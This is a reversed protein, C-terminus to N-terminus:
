GVFYVPFNYAGRKALWGDFSNGVSLHADLLVVAGRGNLALDDLMSELLKEMAAPGVQEFKKSGQTCVEADDTQSPLAGPAVDEVTEMASTHLQEAFATRGDRILPANKWLWEAAVGGAQTLVQWM